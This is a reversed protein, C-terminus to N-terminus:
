TAAEEKKKGRTAATPRWALLDDRTLGLTALLQTLETTYYDGLRQGYTPDVDNHWQRVWPLLEDWAALLPTLRAGDWGDLERRELAYAALAQVQQLHDWGAWGLVPSRDTDREAGPLLVFREKPVDLKGRLSWVDKSRFDASTYKPPVPIDVTEGADERRQLDWVQEWVARKRLAEETYRAAAVAPVAQPLCLRRVIDALDPDDRGAWLAAVSVWDADDRMLDALRDTSIVRPQGNPSWLPETELRDLLWGRLAREQQKEWSESAWRRKHEPNELLRSAPESAILDL